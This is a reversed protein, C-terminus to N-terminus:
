NSSNQPLLCKFIYIIEASKKKTKKNKQQQQAAM